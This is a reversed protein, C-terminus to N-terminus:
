NTFRPKRIINTTTFEFDQTATSMNFNFTGYLGSTEGNSASTAYIRMANGNSSDTTLDVKDSQAVLDEDRMRADKYIFIQSDGSDAGTDYLKAKVYLEGTESTNEGLKIGSLYTGSDVLQSGAVSGSTSSAVALDNLNITDNGIASINTDSQFVGLQITSTM